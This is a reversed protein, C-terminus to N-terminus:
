LEFAIAPARKKDEIAREVDRMAKDRSLYWPRLPTDRMIHNVPGYIWAGWLGGVPLPKVYGIPYVRKRDGYDAPDMYYSVAHPMDRWAYVTNKDAMRFKKCEM